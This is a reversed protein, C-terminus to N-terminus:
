TQSPHSAARNNRNGGSNGGNGGCEINLVAVNKAVLGLIAHAMIPSVSNGIMRFSHWKTEHFDFWDPFGQLRAAERVTIVRPQDPHLPRVSQFSGHDPGTGARLTPAPANWSLRPCRSIPDSKGARVESFRKVVSAKHQTPYVGTVRGSAVLTRISEDGLRAHQARASAAYSSLTKVKRYLGMGSKRPNPLDKIADAVTMRTARVLEQLASDPIADADRLGIIIVRDRNTAAGYDNANVKVPGLIGYGTIDKMSDKLLGRVNGLLLGPVNEMIFFKPQIEAVLRFYHHLLENRSDSLKRKGMLSFGQCPPGGIIGIEEEPTLGAASILTEGSTQSLDALLLRTGPFNRTYASTLTPDKDVALVTSFGALHAGLSFGGAGCFLDIVKM